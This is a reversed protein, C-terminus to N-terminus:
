NKAPQTAPMPAGADSQLPAGSAAAPGDYTVWAGPGRLRTLGMDHLYQSDVPAVKPPVKGEIEGAAFLDWDSPAIHTAGPVAPQKSLSLPEVLSATVMVVLETDATQYRVSRFLAGLVPVDGLGPVRSNRAQVSEQLLGAMGFTQGSGLELTTEARRTILAPIVFGQLQVAGVNSIESVEPAVHLRITGDGLVTPRFRLRVGYEKYEITIATGTSGAQTSQAVPIPYEGGALFSAEQGSLAVLSPEALVRMYQNEALASIFFQLDSGPVGGFLTVGPSVGTDSLFKFSNSGVATGAPVGISVPNIPGGSDPGITSAGFASTGAVFANMGLSRIATRNAEAIVVKLQVQQVGAVSTLDVYKLGYTNLYRHLQDAEEARSLMGSVLLTDRSQRVELKASPFLRALEDKIGGRDIDVQVRGVWMTEDKNWMFVDTTGVAKGSVLVQSPTLVKVDAIKPDTVSVRTVPWPTPIVTSRGVPIKIDQIEGVPQSARTAADQAWATGGAGGVAWILLAAAATRAIRRGMSRGSYTRVSGAWPHCTNM